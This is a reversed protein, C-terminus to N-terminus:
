SRLLFSCFKKVVSPTPRYLIPFLFNHLHHEHPRTIFAAQYLYISFSTWVFWMRIYFANVSPLNALLKCLFHRLIFNLVFFRCFICRIGIKDSRVKVGEPHGIRLAREREREREHSFTHLEGLLAIPQPYFNDRRCGIAKAFCRISLFENRACLVHPLASFIPCRKTNISKTRKQRSKEVENFRSM